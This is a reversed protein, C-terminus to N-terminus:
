CILTSWSEISLISRLWIIEMCIRSYESTVIIEAFSITLSQNMCTLFNTVLLPPTYNLGVVLIDKFSIRVSETNVWSSRCFDLHFSYWGDKIHGLNSAKITKEKGNETAENKQPSKENAQFDLGKIVKLANRQLARRTRCM